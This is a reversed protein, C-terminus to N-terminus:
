IDEYDAESGNSGGGKRTPTIPTSHTDAGNSGHSHKPLEQSYRGNAKDTRLESSGHGDGDPVPAPFYRRGNRLVLERGVLSKIARYFTSTAQEGAKRWEEATAGTSGFDARLADLTNRESATLGDAADPEEITGESRLFVFGDTTGGVSFGVREPLWGERDKERHLVVRGVTDRDFPVPNKLAWMVDVEDKKRSAGRAHNKEHPVHDLLLVTIGRERAPRTYRVAWKVIDDNSNEELGASGLFNVLSDFIVLAPKVEDLLTKYSAVVETDMTLNPFPYYHLLEDLRETEVGMQALRESIIRWGNESDFVVVEEGREILRKVVWLWLWTKGIGSPGYISHVRGTLLLDQVLEEPPEIGEAIGKALLVRSAFLPDGHSIM